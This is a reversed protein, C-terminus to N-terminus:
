RCPLRAALGVGLSTLPSDSTSCFSSPWQKQSVRRMQQKKINRFDPASIGTDLFVMIIARNRAALFENPFWAELLKRIHEPKIPQVVKQPIKVNKIPDFPNAEIVGIRGLWVFM